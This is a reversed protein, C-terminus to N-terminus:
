RPIDILIIVARLDLEFSHVYDYDWVAASVGM